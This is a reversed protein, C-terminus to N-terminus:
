ATIEKDTEATDAAPESQEQKKNDGEVEEPRPLSNKANTDSYQAMLREAIEDIEKNDKERKDELEVEHRENLTGYSGGKSKLWMDTMPTEPPRQVIGDESEMVQKDFNDIIKSEARMKKTLVNDAHQIIESRRIRTKQRFDPDKKCWDHYTDPNIDAIDCCEEITFGKARLESIQNKKLQRTAERM